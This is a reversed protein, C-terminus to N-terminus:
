VEIWKCDERNMRLIHLAGDPHAGNVVVLTRFGLKYCVRLSAVNGSPVHAFIMASNATVFAYHFATRLLTRNLWGPKTGAFHVQCSSGTFGAFGVCGVIVKDVVRALLRLDTSWPIGIRENLWEYLVMEPTSTLFDSRSSGSPIAATDAPIAQDRDLGAIEKRHKLEEM